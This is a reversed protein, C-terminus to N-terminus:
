WPLALNRLDQGLWLLFEVDLPAFEFRRRIWKQCRLYVHYDELRYWPCPLPPMGYTELKDLTDQELAVHCYSYLQSCGPIRVEGMTYVYKLTTNVWRQAHGLCFHDSAQERYIAVLAECLAQHWTDYEDAGFLGGQKDRLDELAGLVVRTGQEQLTDPVTVMGSEPAGASTDMFARKVCAHLYNDEVGFYTRVLYEEYDLRSLISRAKV